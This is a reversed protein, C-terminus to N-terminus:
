PLVSTIAVDVWSNAIVAGHMGPGHAGPAGSGPAARGSLSPLKARTATTVLAVPSISAIAILFRSLGVAAAHEADSSHHPGTDGAISAPVGTPGGCFTAVPPNQSM